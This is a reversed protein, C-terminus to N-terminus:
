RSARGAPCRGPQRARPRSPRRAPPASSAPVLSNAAAPKVMENTSPESSAMNELPQVAAQAARALDLSRQPQGREPQHGRDVAQPAVLPRVLIQALLRQGGIGLRDAADECRELEDLGCFGGFTTSTVEESGSSPLVVSRPSGPRAPRGSASARRQQDVEVQAMRAHVALQAPLDRRAEDLVHRALPGQLLHDM